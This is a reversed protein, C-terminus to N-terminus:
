QWAIPFFPGSMLEASMSAFEDEYHAFVAEGGERKARGTKRHSVTRGNRRSCENALLKDSTVVGFRRREIMQTEGTMKVHQAVEYLDMEVVFLCIYNILMQFISRGEAGRLHIPVQFSLVSQLTGCLEPLLELRESRGLQGLWVALDLYEGYDVLKPHLFQPNLGSHLALLFYQRTSLDFHELEGALVRRVFTMVKGDSRMDAKATSISKQVVKARLYGNRLVRLLEFESDLLSSAGHVRGSEYICDYFAVENRIADRMKLSNIGFLECFSGNREKFFEIAATGDAAKSPEAPRQKPDVYEGESNITLGMVSTRYRGVFYEKNTQHDTEKGAVDGGDRLTNSILEAIRMRASLATKLRQLQNSHPPRKHALKDRPTWTWLVHGGREFIEWAKEDFPIGRSRVEFESMGVIDWGEPIGNIKNNPLYGVNMMQGFYTNYILAPTELNCFPDRLVALKIFYKPGNDDPSTKQLRKLDLPM